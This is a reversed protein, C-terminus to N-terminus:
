NPGPREISDIVLYERPVKTAELRLGLQQELADIQDLASTGVAVAARDNSPLTVEFRCAMATRNVHIWLGAPAPKKETLNLFSRRSLPQM